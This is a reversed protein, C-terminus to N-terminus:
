DKPQENYMEISKAIIEDLCNQISSGTGCLGNEGDFNEHVFYYDHKGTPIPKPNYTITWGTPAIISM